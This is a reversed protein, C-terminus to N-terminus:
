LATLADTSSVRRRQPISPSHGHRVLALISAAWSQWPTMTLWLWRAAHSHSCSSGPRRGPNRSNYPPM